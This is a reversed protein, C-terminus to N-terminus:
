SRRMLWRPVKFRIISFYAWVYAVMFLATFFMLMPTNSWFLVAPIV